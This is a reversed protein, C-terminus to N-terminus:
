RPPASLRYTAAMDEEGHGAEVGEALRQAITRIM